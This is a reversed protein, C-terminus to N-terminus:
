KPTRSRDPADVFLAPRSGPDVSVWAYPRTTFFSIEVMGLCLFLASAVPQAGLRRHAAQSRTQFASIRSMTWEIGRERLYANAADWLRLFARSMRFAPDVYVDFDWATRAAPRPVFRCRVEDEEYAEHMLWIFGVLADGRSAAFCVAGDAFRRAIVEAPRPFNRTLRHGAEIREIAFGADAPGSVWARDPVPQAVIRYHVVRLRGGTLRKAGRALLLLTGDLWGLRGLVERIRNM